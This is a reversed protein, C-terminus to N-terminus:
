WLIIVSTFIKSAFATHIRQKRHGYIVCTYHEYFKAQAMLIKREYNVVM